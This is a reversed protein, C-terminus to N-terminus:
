CLDLRDAPLCSERAVREYPTTSLEWFHSRRENQVTCFFRCSSAITALKRLVAKGAEWLGRCRVTELVRVPLTDYCHCCGLCLANVCWWVYEGGLAEPAFLKYYAPPPPVAGVVKAEETAM